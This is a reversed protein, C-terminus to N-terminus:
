ESVEPPEPLPMWHTIFDHCPDFSHYYHNAYYWGVPLHYIKFMDLTMFIAERVKSGDSVLYRGFNEPMQEKTPIWRQARIFHGCDREMDPDPSDTVMTCWNDKYCACDKCKM